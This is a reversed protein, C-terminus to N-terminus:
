SAATRAKGSPPLLKRALQYSLGEPRGMFLWDTTLGPVKRVLHLAMDRPLPLGIVYNNWRQPSVGLFDAFAAQTKYGLVERLLELRKAQDLDPAQTDNKAMGDALIRTDHNDRWLISKSGQLDFIRPNIHPGIRSSVVVESTM